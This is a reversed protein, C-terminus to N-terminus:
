KLVKGNNKGNYKEFLQKKMNQVRIGMKEFEPVLGNIFTEFMEYSNVDGFIKNCTGYGLLADILRRLEQFGWIQVDYFEKFEDPMKIMEGEEVDTIQKIEDVGLAELKKKAEDQRKEIEKITNQADNYFEIVKGTLNVDDLNFKIQHYVNGNGDLIDITYVNKNQIVIAM